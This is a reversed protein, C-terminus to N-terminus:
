ALSAIILTHLLCQGGQFATRCSTLIEHGQNNGGNLGIGRQALDAIDQTADEAFLAFKAAYFPLVLDRASRDPQPMPAVLARGDAEWQHLTPVCAWDFVYPITINQHHRLTRKHHKLSNLVNSKMM